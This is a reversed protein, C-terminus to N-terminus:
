TAAVINSRDDESSSVADIDINEYLTIIQNQSEFANWSVVPEISFWGISLSNKLSILLRLNVSKSAIEVEM